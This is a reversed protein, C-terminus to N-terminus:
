LLLATGIVISIGTVVLGLMPKTLEWIMNSSLTNQDDTHHKHLIYWMVGTFLIFITALITMSRISSITHVLPSYGLLLCVPSLYILYYFSLVQQRVTLSIEKQGRQFTIIFISILLPPAITLAILSYYSGISQEAIVGLSYSYSAITYFATVIAICTVSAWIMLAPIEQNLDLIFSSPSSGRVDKILRM